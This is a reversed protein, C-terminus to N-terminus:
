PMDTVIMRCQGTAGAGSGGNAMAPAPGDCDRSNQGLTLNEATSASGSQGRAQVVGNSIAVTQSRIIARAQAVARVGGTAGAMQARAGDTVGPAGALAALFAAAMSISGVPRIGVRRLILRAVAQAERDSVPVDHAGGGGPQAGHGLPDAPARGASFDAGPLHKM